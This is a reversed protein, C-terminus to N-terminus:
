TPFNVHTLVDVNLYLAPLYLYKLLLMLGSPTPFIKRYGAGRNASLIAVWQTIRVDIPIGLPTPTVVKTEIKSVTKAKSM